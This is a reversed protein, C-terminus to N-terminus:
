SKSQGWLPAVTEVAREVVAKIRDRLVGYACEVELTELWVKAVHKDVIIEVGPVPIGISHLRELEEAEMDEREAEADDMNLEEKPELKVNDDEEDQKPEKAAIKPRTIPTIQPGFQAELFM